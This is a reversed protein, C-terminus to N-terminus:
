KHLIYGIGRITQIMNSESNDGIKQRLRKIYVSLTNNNVYKGDIDWIKELIQERTILKNINNIFMLLIKYELNTLFIEENDKFVKAKEIEIRLNRYQIVKDKNLNKNYRRMVSNIRSILEENGFPKTIYDDAGMDLGYVINVEEGRGTLFIIPMDSYQRIKKCIDFGTGDPLQIDLLALDYEKEELKELADKKTQSIYTNYGHKNLSYELAETIESNDEVILINITKNKMGVM